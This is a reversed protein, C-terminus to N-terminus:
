KDYRYGVGYISTLHKQMEPLKKRIARIHVDITRDNIPKKSHHRVADIIDKRTVTEGAAVALRRLIDFETLTLDITRNRYKVTRSAPDINLDGVLIPSGAGSRSTTARLRAQVRALLEKYDFPKPIYDDAGISLGSTIDAIRSKASLFIVPIHATRQDKKMLQCADLGSLHPLMIDLLILDPNQNRAYDIGLVANDAMLVDYEKSLIQQLFRRTDENDEIVLIKFKPSASGTATPASM